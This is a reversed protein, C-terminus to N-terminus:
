FLRTEEKIVQDVAARLLLHLRLCFCQLSVESLQLSLYVIILTVGVISFHLM